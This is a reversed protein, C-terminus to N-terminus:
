GRQGMHGAQGAPDYDLHIYAREIGSINETCYTIIEGVDHAEKLNLTIPLILDVEAVMTDGAHYLEFGAISQVLSFRSVLYLCRSVDDAGAAKGTLKSTTDALTAIWEIIIYLSLLMGGIPDLAPANLYAGLTPFVLTFVNFMVDNESDQAIAAVSSNKSHRCLLWMFAKIVITILMFATGVVPLLTSSGPAESERVVAVLRSLSELLVQTFSVVMLVSFILVGLPELRRKGVPYMYFTHWSRYATARSTLYIVVTSLLDLASDVLSALLSVSDSSLVAIVKGVVLLLNILLNISIYWHVFSEAERKRHHTPVIQLLHSRENDAKTWVGKREGGTAAAVSRRRDTDARKSARQTVDAPADEPITSYPSPRSALLAAREHPPSASPSEVLAAERQDQLSQWYGTLSNVARESNRRHRRNTGPAFPHSWSDSDDDSDDEDDSLCVTRPSKDLVLHVHADRPVDRRLTRPDAFRRMVEAPFQSELIEDVERWGDLLANQRVYFARVGANRIGALQEESMRCCEYSGSRSDILQAFAQLSQLSSSRHLGLPAERSRSRAMARGSEASPGSPPADRESGFDIVFEARKQGHEPRAASM